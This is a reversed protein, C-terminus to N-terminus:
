NAFAGEREQLYDECVRAELGNWIGLTAEFMVINELATEHAESADDPCDAHEGVGAALANLADWNFDIVMKLLGIEQMLIDVDKEKAAAYSALKAILAGDCMATAVETEVKNHNLACVCNLLILSLKDHTERRASESARARREAEQTAALCAATGRHQTAEAVIRELETRQALM